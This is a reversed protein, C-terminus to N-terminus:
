IDDFFRSPASELRSIFNKNLELGTFASLKKLFQNASFERPPM